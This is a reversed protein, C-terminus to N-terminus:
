VVDKPDRTHSRHVWALADPASLPGRSAAPEPPPRLLLRQIPVELQKGSLTRHVAPVAEIRDPVHRPSLESRLATTIRRRLDATLEEGRALAVFLLLEGM